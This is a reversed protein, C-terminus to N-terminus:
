HQEHIGGAWVPRCSVLRGPDDYRDVSPEPVSLAAVSNTIRSPRSRNPPRRRSNSPRTSRTSPTTSRASNTRRARTGKLGAKFEMLSKGLNKGVEPLRRGFLLVAIIGILIWETTGWGFMALINM